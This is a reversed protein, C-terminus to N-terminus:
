SQLPAAECCCGGFSQGKMRPNPRHRKYFLSIVFLRSSNRIHKTFNLPPLAGRPFKQPPLQEGAGRSGVGIYHHVEQVWTATNYMRSLFSCGPRVVKTAHQLMGVLSLIDKKKACKKPLWECVAGKPHELKEVRLQAELLATNLSIGLFDLVTSPNGIDPM